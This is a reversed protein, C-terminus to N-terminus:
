FGRLDLEVEEGLWYAHETHDILADGTSGHILVSLDGRQEDLWPVFRDFDTNTFLVQCSWKTHPGVPKLHVRGVKLAFKEGAEMCLGSAFRLTDEDFYVHAHYQNHINIPRKPSNM